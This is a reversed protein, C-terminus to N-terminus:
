QLHWHIVPFFNLMGGYAYHANPMLEGPELRDMLTRMRRPSRFFLHRRTSLASLQKMRREKSRRNQFWVQTELSLFFSLFFSFPIFLCVGFPTNLCLYLCMFGWISFLSRTMQRKFSHYFSWFLLRRMCIYTLYHWFFVYWPLRHMVNITM